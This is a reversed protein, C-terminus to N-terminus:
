APYREDAAPKLRPAPQTETVWRTHWAAVEGAVAVCLSAADLRDIRVTLWIGM